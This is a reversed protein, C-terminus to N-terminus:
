MEVSQGETFQWPDVDQGNEGVPTLLHWRGPIYVDDSREFYRQSM